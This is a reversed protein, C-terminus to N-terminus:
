ASRQLLSKIFHKIPRPTVQAFHRRSSLAWSGTLCRLHKTQTAIANRAKRIKYAAWRDLLASRRSAIIWGEGASCNTLRVWFGANRLHGLLCEVSYDQKLYAHHLLLINKIRALVELSTSLILPFEAGECNARLLDVTEIRNREMFTQLSESRVYEADPSVKSVVSHAWNGERHNHYLPVVGNRDFLVLHEATVNGLSNERINRELIEFTERCGEVAYIRGKGIRRAILCTFTGIHAGVDIITDNTSPSYEPVEPLFIDHEFSHALVKDDATHPRYFVTLDFQPVAHRALEPYSM